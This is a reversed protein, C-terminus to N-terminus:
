ASRVDLVVIQTESPLRSRSVSLRPQSPVDRLGMERLFRELPELDAEGLQPQMADTRYRMPIVVQPGLLSITEAAAAPGISNGGGVPVLLVDAPKMEEVHEPNPIRPLNGLHCIVIEDIEILYATNKLQDERGWFTAIGDIMVGAIEYEGPGAVERPSGGVGAVFNHHPHQHSVTVINATLRGLRGWSLDYPDTVVTADRGRIRFCSNGLYTIDPM